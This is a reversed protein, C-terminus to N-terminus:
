PLPIHNSRIVRQDIDDDWAHVHTVLKQEAIARANLDRFARAQVPGIVGSMLKGVMERPHLEADNGAKMNAFTYKGERDVAFVPEPM